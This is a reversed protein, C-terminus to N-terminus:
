LKPTARQEQHGTTNDTSKVVIDNELSYFMTEQEAMASLGFFGDGLEDFLPQTDPAPDEAYHQTAEEYYQTDEGSDQTEACPLETRRRNGQTTVARAPSRSRSRIERLRPQWMQIPKGTPQTLAEHM